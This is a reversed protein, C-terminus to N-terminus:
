GVKEYCEPGIFYNEFSTGRIRSRAYPIDELLLPSPDLWFHNLIWKSLLVNISVFIDHQEAPICSNSHLLTALLRLFSLKREYDSELRIEQVDSIVPVNARLLLYRIEEALLKCESQYSIQELVPIVRVCLRDVTDLNLDLYNTM